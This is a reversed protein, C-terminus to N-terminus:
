SRTVKWYSMEIVIEITKSRMVKRAGQFCEAVDDRLAESVVIGVAHVVTM